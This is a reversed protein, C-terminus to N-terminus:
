GALEPVIVPFSPSPSCYAECEFTGRTLPVDAQFEPAGSRFVVSIHCIGVSDPSIFYPGSKPSSVNSCAGTATVSEIDDLRDAPISVSFGSQPCECTSGDGAAAPPPAGDESAPVSIGGCAVLASSCAALVFTHLAFRTNM